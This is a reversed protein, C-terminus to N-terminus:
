DPNSEQRQSSGYIAHTRIGLGLLNRGKSVNISQMGTGEDQTKSSVFKWCASTEQYGSEGASSKQLRCRARRASCGHENNWLPSFWERNAKWLCFQFCIVELDLNGWIDFRHGFWFAISYGQYKGKVWKSKGIFKNQDVVWVVPLPSYYISFRNRSMM